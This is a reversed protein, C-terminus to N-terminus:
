RYYAPSHGPCLREGLIEPHPIAPRHMICLTHLANLYHAIKDAEHYFSYGTCVKSCTEFGAQPNDHAYCYDYRVKLEGLACEAAWLNPVRTIYFGDHGIASKGCYLHRRLYALREEPNRCRIVDPYRRKPAITSQATM